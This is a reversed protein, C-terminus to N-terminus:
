NRGKFVLPLLLVALVIVLVVPWFSGITTTISASIIGSTIGYATLGAVGLMVGFLALRGDRPQTLLATLFFAAGVTVFLLPWGTMLGPGSPQSLIFLTAGLLLIFMGGLFSGRAWRGTALWHALLIVGVAVLAVASLLSTDPTSSTTLAFTLWAGVGMLLLAPVVSAIQGRNLSLLPPREFPESSEYVPQADRVLEPIEDVQEYAHADADEGYEDVVSATDQATLDSLSAVAALAAEVDLGSDMAAADSVAEPADETSTDTIDTEELEVIDKVVDPPTDVEAEDHTFEDDIDADEDSVTDEPPTDMEDTM